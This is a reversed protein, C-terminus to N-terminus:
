PRYISRERYEPYESYIEELLQNFSRSSVYRGIRRIWEADDGLREAISVVEEEGDETLEYQEYRRAQAELLGRLMLYDKTDYVQRDFPGYDYKQFSFLDKWESRGRQVVLFSGKMLRVPDMPYKGDGGDVLLLLVDERTLSASDKM